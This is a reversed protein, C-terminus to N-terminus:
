QGRLEFISVTGTLEYSVIVLPKGNPSDKENVFVIGEPSVDGAANGLDFMGGTWNTSSVYQVFRPASPKSVDFLMLSGERELGVVVWHKGFAQGYAIGEPEPGKNDSRTDKANPRGTGTSWDANFNAANKELITREFLDGSDYVLKAAKVGKSQPARWVSFSRAGLSYAVSVSTTDTVVTGLPNAPVFPTVGLRGLSLTSQLAPDIGNSGYRVDEAEDETPDTGGMLCPWERADGENATFLYNKGAIRATAVADPQYMGYAPVARVSTLSDRDSPDMGTTATNHNKYGLGSVGLIKKNKLDVTAVANNEQLTVWALSSDSSIAIYEPELDQAVTAGPGYVRGGSAVIDSAQGNFDSFDLTTARPKSATVDIISISGKPDSTETLVGGTKCYDKPEGENATVVLRGNPSFHISDPLAGVVVGRPASKLLKGDADMMFVRGPSTKEGVTTAAVVVGNYAAVSQISTVGQAVLSISSILKPRKVSSIDVIEISNKVGNTLYLRKTKADFAAIEAGGVGSLTDYGAIRSLGYNTSAQPRSFEPQAAAPLSWAAAVPILSLGLTIALAKHKMKGNRCLQM